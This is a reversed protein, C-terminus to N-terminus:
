PRSSSGGQSRKHTLDPFPFALPNLLSWQGHFNTSSPPFLALGKCVTGRDVLDRKSIEIAHNVDQGQEWPPILGIRSTAPLRATFCPGSMYSSGFYSHYVFEQLVTHAKTNQPSWKLTSGPSAQPPTAVSPFLWHLSSRFM